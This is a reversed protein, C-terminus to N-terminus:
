VNSNKQCEKSRKNCIVEHRCKTKNDHPGQASTQVCASYSWISCKILGNVSAANGIYTVHLLGYLFTKLLTFQQTFFATMNPTIAHLESMTIHLIEEAEATSIRAPVRDCQPFALLYNVEGLVEKERHVFGFLNVHVMIVTPTSMFFPVTPLIKAKCIKALLLPWKMQSVNRVQWGSSGESKSIKEHKRRKQQRWSSVFTM